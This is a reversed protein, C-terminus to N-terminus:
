VINYALQTVTISSLCLISKGLNITKPSQKFHQNRLKELLVLVYCKEWWKAWEKGAMKLAEKGESIDKINASRLM